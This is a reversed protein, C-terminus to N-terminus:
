IEKQYITLTFSFQAEWEPLGLIRWLCADKLSTRTRTYFYWTSTQTLFIEVSSVVLQNKSFILLISLGKALRILLFLSLVWINSFNSIFLPMVVSRVTIFFSLLSIHHVVIYRYMQYRVSLPFNRLFVCVALMAELLFLFHSCVQLMYYYDFYLGPLFAWAWLAESTFKVLCKFLFLMLEEHFKGGFYFVLNLVIKLLIGASKRQSNSLSIIFNINFYIPGLIALVITLLLLAAILM